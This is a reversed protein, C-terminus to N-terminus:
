QTKSQYTHFTHYTLDKDMGASQKQLVFHSRACLTGLVFHRCANSSRGPRSALGDCPVWCSKVVLMVAGGQILHWDKVLNGLMFRSPANLVVTLERRAVVERLYGGGM